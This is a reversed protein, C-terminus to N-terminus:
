TAMPTRSAFTDALYDPWQLRALRVTVAASKWDCSVIEGHYEAEPLTVGTNDKLLKIGRVLTAATLKNRNKWWKFYTSIM